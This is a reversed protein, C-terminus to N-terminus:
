PTRSSGSTPSSTPSRGPATSGPTSSTRSRGPTDGPSCGTSTPSSTGSATTPNRGIPVVACAKPGVALRIKAAMALITKDGKITKSDRAGIALLKPRAEESVFVAAVVLPGFFDGKGSEDVGIHPEFPEEPASTAKGALEAEYGFGSTKLIEPELLFLVLDSTGKGQVVLKGSEYVAM